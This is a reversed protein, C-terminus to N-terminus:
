VCRRVIYIYAGNEETAEVLEDGRSLLFARFDKVTAPDTTVVRLTQGIAIQDLARRMRLVPIPCQKGRADVELDAM